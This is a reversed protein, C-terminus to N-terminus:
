WLPGIARELWDIPSSARPMNEALSVPDVSGIPMPWLCGIEPTLLNRAIDTEFRLSVHSDPLTM